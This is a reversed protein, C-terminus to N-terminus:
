QRLSFPFGIHGKHWCADKGGDQKTDVGGRAGRQTGTGGQIGRGSGDERGVRGAHWDARGRSPGM